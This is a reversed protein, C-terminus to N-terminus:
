HPWIHGTVHPTLQGREGLPLGWEAVPEGSQHWWVDWGLGSEAEQEEM